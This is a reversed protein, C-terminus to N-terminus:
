GDGCVQLCRLQPLASHIALHDVLTLQLMPVGEEEAVQFMMHIRKESLRAARGITGQRGRELHGGDHM